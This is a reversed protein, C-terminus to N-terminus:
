IESFHTYLCAKTLTCTYKIYYLLVHMNLITCSYM